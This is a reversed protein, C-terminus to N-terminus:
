AYGRQRLRMMKEQDDLFAHESSTLGTQDAVGQNMIGANFFAPNVGPTEPLFTNQAVNETQINTPLSSTPGINQKRDSGQEIVADKPPMPVGEDPLTFISGGLKGLIIAAAKSGKKM